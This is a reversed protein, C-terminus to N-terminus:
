RKRSKNIVEEAIASAASALLSVLVRVWPNSM